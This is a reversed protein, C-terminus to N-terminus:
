ELAAAEAREHDLATAASCVREQAAVVAKLLDAELFQQNCEVNSTRL